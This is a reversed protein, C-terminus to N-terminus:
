RVLDIAGFLSQRMDPSHKLDDTTVARLYAKLKIRLLRMVTNTKSDRVLEAM